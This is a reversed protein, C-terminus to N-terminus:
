AANRSRVEANGHARNLDRISCALLKAEASRIAYEDHLDLGLSWGILGAHQNTIHQHAGSTFRNGIAFIKQIKQRFLADSVFYLSIYNATALENRKTDLEIGFSTRVPRLCKLCFPPLSSTISTAAEGVRRVSICSASVDRSDSCM